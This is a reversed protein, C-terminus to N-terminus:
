GGRRPLARHARGLLDRYEAERGIMYACGALLELDDPALPSRRDAQSLSRYADSWAERSYAERGLDLETRIEVTIGIIAAPVLASQRGHATPFM